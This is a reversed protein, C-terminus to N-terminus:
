AFLYPKQKFETIRAKVYDSGRWSSRYHEIWRRFEEHPFASGPCDTTAYQLDKHAKITNADAMDINYLRGWLTVVRAGSRLQIETPRQRGFRGTANSFPGDSKTEFNGNFAIGLSRANNGRAHNGYRDWRCFPHIAGDQMIVCHYGTLWDKQKIVRVVDEFTSTGNMATHHYVILSPTGGRKHHHELIERDVGGNYPIDIWEVGAPESAPVVIAPESAAEKARPSAEVTEAGATEAEPGAAEPTIRRESILRILVHVPASGGGILLGTLVYDAPASIAIGFAQFLQVNALRALLIGAAFGTLQLLFRKITVGDDPDTAAEWLVPRQPYTEEVEEEKAAESKELRKRLEGLKREIDARRPVRMTRGFSTFRELVNTTVELAREVVVSLGLAASLSVLVADM